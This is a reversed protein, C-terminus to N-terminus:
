FEFIIKREDLPNLDTDKLHLVIGIDHTMRPEGYISVAFSGTAMYRLGSEALPQLFVLAPDAEPM